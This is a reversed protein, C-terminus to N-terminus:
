MANRTEEKSEFSERRVKGIQMLELELRRVTGVAGSNVLGIVKEVGLEFGPFHSYQHAFINEIM